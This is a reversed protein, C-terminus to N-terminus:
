DGQLLRARPGSPIISDATVVVTTGPSIITSVALKFAPPVLFRELDADPAPDGSPQSLDFQMWRYDRGVVSQLQYIQTGQVPADLGVPTSGIVQGNRLVVARRDAGSIVISVPGSPSREPHWDIAEAAQDVPAPALQFAPAIRPLAQQRTVIVTMGLRTVGFLVRAFEPPLRICGHSAPYGPLQGAHLAVGGWTLRQMYPMPANEYISSFHEVDKELITFVGIPTAFGPRGTSVTSIGIPVGNRYLVARQTAVSVILLLPGEPAAQPAWLFEGPKLHEVTEMVTTTDLVRQAGAPDPAMPCLLGAALLLRRTWDIRLHMPIVAIHPAGCGPAGSPFRLAGPVAAGSM